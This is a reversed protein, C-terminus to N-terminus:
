QVPEAILDRATLPLGAAHALIRAEGGLSSQDAGAVREGIATAFWVVSLDSHIIVLHLAAERRAFFNADVITELQAGEAKHDFEDDGFPERLQRGIVGLGEHVIQRAREPHRGRGAVVHGLRHHSLRVGPDARM